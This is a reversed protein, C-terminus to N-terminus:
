HSPEYVSDPLNGFHIARCRPGAEPQRGRVYMHVHPSLLEPEGNEDFVTCGCESGDCDFVLDSYSLTTISSKGPDRLSALSLTLKTAGVNYEGAM